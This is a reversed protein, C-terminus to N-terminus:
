YSPLAAAQTDPIVRWPEKMGNSFQLRPRDGHVQNADRCADSLCAAYTRFIASRSFPLELTYLKLPWVQLSPRARYADDAGGGM